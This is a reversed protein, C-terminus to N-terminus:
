GMVIKEPLAEGVKPCGGCGKTAPINVTRFVVTFIGSLAKQRRRVTMEGEGCARGWQRVAGRSPLSMVSM